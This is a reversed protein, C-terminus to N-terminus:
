DQEASADAGDGYDSAEKSDESDADEPLESGAERVVWVKVEATVDDTFHVPVVVNDLHRIPDLLKVQDAEVSHGEQRLAAAIERPGVSGYLVGEANVAAKITVEFDALRAALAVQEEKRLRRQEAAAVRAEEIKKINSDTPLAAIRQPLLYNRAYGEKVDVVDGIYGLNKVDEQLLLKM